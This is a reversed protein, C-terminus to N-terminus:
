KHCIVAEIWMFSGGISKAVHNVEMLGPRRQNKFHHILSEGYNVPSLLNSWECSLCLATQRRCDVLRDEMTTEIYGRPVEYKALV